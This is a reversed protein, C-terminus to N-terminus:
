ADTEDSGHAPGEAQVAVADPKGGIAFEAIAQKRDLFVVHLGQHAVAGGVALDRVQDAAVDGGLPQAMFDVGGLEHGWRAGHVGNAASRSIGPLRKSVRAAGIPASASSM